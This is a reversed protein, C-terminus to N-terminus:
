ALMDELGEEGGLLNALASALTQRHRARHDHVPMMAMKGELGLYALARREVNAQGHRPRRARGWDRCSLLSSQSIDSWALSLHRRPVRSASSRTPSSGRGTSAVRGPAEPFSWALRTPGPPAFAGSSLSAM